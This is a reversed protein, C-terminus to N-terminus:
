LDNPPFQASPGCSSSSQITLTAIPLWLDASFASTSISPMMLAFLLELFPTRKAMLQRRVQLRRKNNIYFPKSPEGWGGKRAKTANESQKHKGAAAAKNLSSVNLLLLFLHEDESRRSNFFIFMSHFSLFLSILQRPLNEPGSIPQLM